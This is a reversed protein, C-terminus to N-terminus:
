VTLENEEQLEIGKKFIQAIVLLSVGMFLWVDAGDMRLYQIEPMRVGQGSLWYTYEAGMYSFLGVTLALYGSTLIFRWIGRNFPQSLSAKKDYFLKIILYFITAKLCSVITMFTTEALFHGKDYQFLYSLDANAWFFRAEGHNIFFTYLVNFIFGGAEICLGIFIIWSLVQLINLTQKTTLTM